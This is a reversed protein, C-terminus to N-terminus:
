QMSTSPTVRQEKSKKPCYLEMRQTQDVTDRTRRFNANLYAPVQNHFIKHATNRQKVIGPIRLMNLETVHEETIHTRLGPDLTFRIIKNLLIQLKNKAKQTM